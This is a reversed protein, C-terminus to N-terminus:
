RRSLWFKSRPDSDAPPLEGRAIAAAIEGSMFERFKRSGETATKLHRLGEDIAGRNCLTDGLLYYASYNNPNETPETDIDEGGGPYIEVSQRLMQEAKKDSAEAAYGNLYSAFLKRPFGTTVSANLDVIRLLNRRQDPSKRATCFQYVLPEAFWLSGGMSEDALIPKENKMYGIIGFLIGHAYGRLDFPIDIIELNALGYRDMGETYVNVTGPEAGIDTVNVDIWGRPNSPETLRYFLKLLYNFM